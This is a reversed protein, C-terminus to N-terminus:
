KSLISFIINHNVSESLYTFFEQLSALNNIFSIMCASTLKVWEGLM